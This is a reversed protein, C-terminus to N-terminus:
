RILVFSHVSSADKLKRESRTTRPSVRVEKSMRVRKTVMTWGHTREDTVDDSESTGTETKCEQLNTDKGVQGNRGTTRKESEGVFLLSLYFM